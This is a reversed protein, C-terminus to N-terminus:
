TRMTMVVNQWGDGTAILVGSQHDKWAFAVFTTTVNYLIDAIYTSNFGFTVAEGKEGAGVPLVAEAEGSEVSHASLTLTDGDITFRVCHSREDAYVAVRELAKLTDKVHLFVHSPFEAPLVRSYDPFNGSLKRSVIRRQGFDMSVYDENAAFTCENEFRAAEVLAKKPIVAHFKEGKAWLPALSLRHGDTAVMRGHGTGDIELLVGQLTFRSEEKSIAFITRDIAQALGSIEWKQELLAPVEPFAERSMGAAQMKGGPYFVILKDDKASLTVEEEDLKNLFQVLKCIPAAVSWDSAGSGKVTTIGAVELNTGKLTLINEHAEFLANALIPINTKKEIFRKIFELEDVLAKVNVQM